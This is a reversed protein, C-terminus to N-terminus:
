SADDRKSSPLRPLWPLVRSPVTRAVAGVAGLLAGRDPTNAASGFRDIGLQVRFDGSMADVPADLPIVTVDTTIRHIAEVADLPLTSAADHPGSLDHPSQAAMRERCLACERSARVESAIAVREAGSWWCGPRALREWARRQAAVLDERVPLAVQAYDIGAMGFGRVGAAIM